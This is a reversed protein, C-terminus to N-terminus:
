LNSLHQGIKMKKVTTNEMFNAIFYIDHIEGCKLSTVAYRAFNLLSFSACNQQMYCLIEQQTNM